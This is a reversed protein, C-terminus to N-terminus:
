WRGPARPRAISSSGAEICADAAASWADVGPVDTRSTNCGYADVRPPWPHIDIIYIIIYFLFIYIYLIYITMMNYIWSYRHNLTYIYYYIISIYIYIIINYIYTIHIVYEHIKMLTGSNNSYTWGKQETGPISVRMTSFWYVNIIRTKLVM